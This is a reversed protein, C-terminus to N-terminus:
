EEGTVKVIMLNPLCVILDGNRYQKGQNVCVHDPCSAEACRITGNEVILRNTGDHAGHIIVEQDKSLDLTKVLTGDITVEARFAPTRHTLRYGVGSVLAITLIVAILIFEPKKWFPKKQNM